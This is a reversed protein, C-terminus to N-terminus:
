YETPVNLDPKLGKLSALPPRHPPLIEKGSILMESGICVSEKPEAEPLIRVRFSLLLFTNFSEFSLM